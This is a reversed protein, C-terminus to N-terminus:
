SRAEFNIPLRVQFVTQGPKSFVSIDGRHKQVVINYSINLGLGTGKGPPKTTFFPDFVKPQIDQPIGPGNDEIEVLVEEGKRCTRIIIEGQGNMADAANDIINTWVQNLESGYGNIKPLDPAYDRRVTVGTKLKSRLIILTNDLGEHIDVLQVPAQDLYSYSKLAKVIESIRTAGQGIEGLLTYVTYEAGLWAVVAPLQGASFDDALQALRPLDFNLEVLTPALEWAEAVGHDELWSELEYERDSRALADLDLLHRAQERTQGALEELRAQQTEDFALKELAVRTEEYHLLAQRLQDAGRTVAAAPNNLEHAVGATLTGLQAMKESQRLMAETNRQRSLVTHFMARAASPSTNLLHDIQENRIALLMSKDRARISAMRPAKDLLAIEGIVAGPQDHVGLLIDRDGARKLVELAGEHVVYVQDGATGEAFLLEGAELHVEKVMRCLRTLDEWPLDSFLPIKQLFDEYM